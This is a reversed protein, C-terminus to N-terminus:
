SPDDDQMKERLRRDEWTEIFRRDENAAEILAAGLLIGGILFVFLVTTSLLPSAGFRYRLVPALVAGSVMLLFPIYRM